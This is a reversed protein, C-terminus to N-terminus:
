IGSYCDCREFVEFSPNLDYFPRPSVLNGSWRSYMTRVPSINHEEVVARTRQARLGYGQNVANNMNRAEASNIALDVGRVFLKTLSSALSTDSAIGLMLMILSLFNSLALEDYFDNMWQLFWTSNRIEAYAIAICLPMFDIAEPVNYTRGMPSFTWIGGREEFSLRPVTRSQEVFMYRRDGGHGTRVFFFNEGHTGIVTVIAGQASRGTLNRSSRYNVNPRLLLPGNRTVIREEQVAVPRSFAVYISARRSFTGFFELGNRCYERFVVDVDIYGRANGVSSVSISLLSSGTASIRGQQNNLRLNQSSRSIWTISTPLGFGGNPGHAPMRIGLRRSAGYLLAITGNNQFFGLLTSSTGLVEGEGDVIEIGSRDRRARHIDYFFSLVTHTIQLVFRVGHLVRLAIGIVRRAAHVYPMITGLAVAVIQAVSLISDLASSVSGLVGHVLRLFRTNPEPLRRILWNVGRYLLEVVTIFLGVVQYTLIIIDLLLNIVTLIDVIFDLWFMLNELFDLARGLRGTPDVFMVPNNNVYAYMNAGLVGQGTDFFVDASIWRRWQPNYFRSQCYYFGTEADWYYGRYRIPNIHAVSHGIFWEDIYAYCDYYGCCEFDALWLERMFCEIELINGWADYSYRAVLNGFEDLIGVVDGMLNRVYFYPMGNLTFGVMRGRADYSWAITFDDCIRAMLLGGVWIYEYSNQRLVDGRTDTISRGIRLGAHDYTYSVDLGNGYIRTLLGGKEWTFTYGNYYILNGLADYRLERGDFSSLQDTWANEYRFTHYVVSRNHYNRIHTLNGGEDYEFFLDNERILQGIDDFDFVHTVEGNETIQVINTGYWEYDFTWADGNPLLTQMREVFGTDGRYDFTTVVPSEDPLFLTQRALRNLSAYSNSLLAGGLSSFHAAMPRQLEDYRFETDSLVDGDHTLTLQELNGYADYALMARTQTLEDRITLVDTLRGAADHGFRTVINNGFSTNTIQTLQGNDAYVYRFQPTGPTQGANWFTESVLFGRADFEPIHGGMTGEAYTTRVLIHPNEDCYYHRAIVQGAISTQMLRGLEDYEFVYNTGNTEISTLRGSGDFNYVNGFEESSISTLLNQANFSYTRAIGDFGLSSEVVNTFRNVVAESTLGDMTVTHIDNHYNQYTIVQDSITRRGDITEIVRVRTLVGTTHYSYETRTIIERVLPTGDDNTLLLGFECFEIVQVYQTETIATILGRNNWEINKEHQTFDPRTTTVRVINAPNVTCYTFVATGAGTTMSEIRTTGEIFTYQSGMGGLTVVADHLTMRHANGSPQNHYNVFLVMHTIDSRLSHSTIVTQAHGRVDTSFNVHAEEIFTDEFYFRAAVNFTGSPVAIAQARAGFTVMQGMLGRMEIHQQISREGNPDGQLRRNSDGGNWRNHDVFNFPSAGGNAELQFADVMVFEGLAQAQVIVSRRIDLEFTISFRQWESTYTTDIGVIESERGLFDSTAVSLRAPSGRFYASLTYTGPELEVTQQIFGSEDLGWSRNGAYAGGVFTQAQVATWANGGIENSPNRLLNRVMRGEASGTPLNRGGDQDIFSTAAVQGNADNVGITRGAFDFLYTLPQDPRLSNTVVTVGPSFCLTIEEILTGFEIEHIIEDRFRNDSPPNGTIYWRGHRDISLWSPQGWASHLVNFILRSLRAVFTNRDPEHVRRTGQIHDGTGRRIRQVRYGTQGHSVREIYDFVVYQSSPEDDNMAVNIVAQLHTSHGDAPNVGGLLAFLLYTKGELEGNENYFHIYRLASLQHDYHFTLRRYVNTNVPVRMQTLYGLENWDLHIQRDITCQIYEIQGNTYRITTTNNHADIIQHLFFRGEPAPIFVKRNGQADHIERNNGIARLTLDSNDEHRFVGTTGIQAFYHVTGTGDVLAYFDGHRFIEEILNLRFGMGFRMNWVQANFHERASVYTHAVAVPMREGGLVANPHIYTLGGSHHNVHASGARGMNITEYTWHPQLGTNNRYTIIITALTMDRDVGIVWWPIESVFDPAMFELMPTNPTLGRLLIGHNNVGPEEHWQKAAATIDFFLLHNYTDDGRLNANRRGIDLFVNSNHAPLNNYTVHQPWASTIQHASLLPLEQPMEERAILLLQANVVVADNPMAPLPFRLASIYNVGSRRGVRLHGSLTENQFRSSVTRTRLDNRNLEYIYSPDLLVPFVREPANMWVPCAMLTLTGDDFTLTLVEFNQVGAADIAYPASIIMQLTGNADCYLHITRVDQPVAILNQLDLTFNYVYEDKPAHVIVYEKLQGPMIIYKLDAGPFANPYILMSHLTDIATIDDTQADPMDPVVARSTFDHAQLQQPEYYTLYPEFEVEFEEYEATTEDVATATTEYTYAQTTPETETMSETVLIELSPLEPLQLAAAAQPVGIAVGFQGLNLTIRNDGGLEKPLQIDTGSARPTYFDGQSVLTNDITIWNGYRDQFHVDHPYIMASYSGDDNLFHRTDATRLAEVESVPTPVHNEDDFTPPAVAAPIPETRRAHVEIAFGHLPQAQVLLVLAMVVSVVKLLIKKM